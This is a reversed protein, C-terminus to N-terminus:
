DMIRFSDYFWNELKAGVTHFDEARVNSKIKRKILSNNDGHAQVWTLIPEHVMIHNKNTNRLYLLVNGHKKGICIKFNSKQVDRYGSTRPFENNRFYFLQSTGCKKFFPAIIWIEKNIMNTMFGKNFVFADTVPYSRIFEVFRYHIWDDADVPMFYGSFGIKRLYAGIVMRKKIKDWYFGTSNIPPPFRVQLWTVKEHKLEPIDPKKHGAIIIRYNQDTNNFISRLTKALNEQVRGWNRSSKKSKLSLAFAIEPKQDNNTDNNMLIQEEIKNLQEEIQLTDVEQNQTNEHGLNGEIKEFGNKSGIGQSIRVQKQKKM